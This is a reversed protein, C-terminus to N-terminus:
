WYKRQVQNNRNLDLIHQVVEESRVLLLAGTTEKELGLSPLLESESRIKMGDMMKSLVPLVSSVSTVGSADSLGCCCIFM